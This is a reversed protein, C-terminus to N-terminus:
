EFHLEHMTSVYVQLINCLYSMSGSIAQAIRWTHRMCFYEM